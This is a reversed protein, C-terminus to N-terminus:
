CNRVEELELFAKVEASDGSLITSPSQGSVVKAHQLMQLFHNLIRNCILHHNDYYIRLFESKVLQISLADSKNSVDIKSDLM